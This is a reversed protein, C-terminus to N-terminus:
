PNLCCRFDVGVAGGAKYESAATRLTAHGLLTALIVPLCRLLGGAAGSMLYFAYAPFILLLRMGLELQPIQMITGSFSIFQLAKCEAECMASRHWYENM